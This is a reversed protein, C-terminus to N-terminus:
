ARSLRSRRSVDADVRHRPLHVFVTTGTNPRSQLEVTGGHAEALTKAISLGLGSGGSRRSRSSDPRYFRDFANAADAASMGPGDDHVIITADTATGDVRIRAPTHADTHVRVNTLLNAIVQRLENTNGIVAVTDDPLEVTLPREPELARFDDAMEAVLAPLDVLERPAQRGQDLRALLLLDDVLTSMRQAESEIRQLAVERDDAAGMLCLQAYGRINTLPTRLEHSADAIFRRLREESAQNAAFAAELRSVMQNLASGLRRADGHLNNPEIRAGLDGHGIKTAVEIMSETPRTAATLLFWLLLAMIATALGGIAFTTETLDHITQNVSTLPTAFAIIHGGYGAINGTVVRYPEGNAARADFPHGISKRLTGLAPLRPEPETHGDVEAPVAFTVHGRTDIAMVASDRAMLRDLRNLSALTQPTLLDIALKATSLENQLAADTRATLRHRTTHVTVYGTVGITAVSLMVVVALVKRRDSIARQPWSASTRRLNM